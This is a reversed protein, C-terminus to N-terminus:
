WRIGDRLFNSSIECYWRNGTRNAKRRRRMRKFPLEVMVMGSPTRSSKGRVRSMNTMNIRRRCGSEGPRLSMGDPEGGAMLNNRGREWEHRGGEGPEGARM